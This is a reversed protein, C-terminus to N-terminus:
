YKWKNNNITHVRKKVTWNDYNIETFLKGVSQKHDKTQLCVKYNMNWFKEIFYNNYVNINIANEVSKM